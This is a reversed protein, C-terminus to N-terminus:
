PLAPGPKLNGRASELEDKPIRVVWLFTQNWPTNATTWQANPYLQHLPEMWQSWEGVEFILIMDKQVQFNFPLEPHDINTVPIRNYTLFQVVSSDYTWHIVIHGLPANKEIAEAALLHNFGLAAWLGQNKPFQSFYVQENVAAAFLVGVLLLIGVTWRVVPVAKKVKQFIWELAFAAALFWFPIILFCRMPNFYDSLPTAGQVALANTSMAVALGVWLVARLRIPGTFFSILLGLLALGGSFVDIMQVGPIGFRPDLAGNPWFFTAFTFFASKLPFLWDHNMRMVNFVSLEQTRGLFDGPNHVCYVIFPGVMWVFVLFSLALPLWYIKAFEKGRGLLLLLLVLFVMAPVLRGPLYSMVSAAMFLGAGIFYARRGENLGRVLFYLCATEFLVTFMNHFPSFSFFFNWWCVSFLFSAIWSAAVGFYLRCFRYFFFLAIVADASSVCRAVTLTLGFVKLVGATIFYTFSPNGWWATAFPSKLTGDLVSVSSMLNNAEDIQLGAFNFGTLPFRCLAALVLLLVLAATESFGFGSPAGLLIKKRNFAIWILAAGLLAIGPYLSNFHMLVVAAAVLVISSVFFFWHAPAKAKIKNKKGRAKSKPAPGPNVAEPLTEFEVPFSKILLWLAAAQLPLGLLWKPDGSLFFIGWGALFIGAFLYPWQISKL